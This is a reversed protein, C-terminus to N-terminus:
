RSTFEEEGEAASGGPAELETTCWHCFDLDADVAKGCNPCTREGREGDAGTGASGAMPATTGLGATGTTAGEAMRRAMVYADVINLATLVLITLSVFFPIARAAEILATFSVTEPFTNAPILVTTSAIVFVFWLLARGWLRLYVHGLGPYILALVAAIWPRKGSASPTKRTM